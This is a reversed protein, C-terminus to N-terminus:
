MFNPDPRSFNCNLAQGKTRKLLLVAVGVNAPLNVRAANNIAKVGFNIKM